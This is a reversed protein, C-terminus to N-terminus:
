YKTRRALAVILHVTTKRRTAPASIVEIWKPNTSLKTSATTVATTASAAKQLKNSIGHGLQRLDRPLMPNRTAFPRMSSEDGFHGWQAALKSYPKRVDSV